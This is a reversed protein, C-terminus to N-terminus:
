QGHVLYPVQRAGGAIKGQINALYHAMEHDKLSANSIERWFNAVSLRDSDHKDLFVYEKGDRLIVEPGLHHYSPPTGPPPLMPVVDRKDIVRTIRNNLVHDPQDSTVKPQGFNVLRTVEYGDAELYGGVIMAIAAGLSHGTMRIKMDKRLYPKADKFVAQADDRFGRHLNLGLFSDPVLAYEIDQWKNQNNQTGRVSVTQTGAARDTEIFYRVDVSPITVVRTVDPYAKRIESPADYASKSRLAYYELETFDVAHPKVVSLTQKYSQSLGGACGALVLFSMILATRVFRNLGDSRHIAYASM